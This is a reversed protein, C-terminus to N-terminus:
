FPSKFELDVIASMKYLFILATALKLIQVLHSKKGIYM